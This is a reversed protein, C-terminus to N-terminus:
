FFKPIKKTNKTWSRKGFIKQQLAVHRWMDMWSVYIKAWNTVVGRGGDEEWKPIVYMVIWIARLSLSCAVIFIHFSFWRKWNDISSLPGIKTWITECLERRNPLLPASNVHVLILQWFNDYITMLQWLSDYTTLLQFVDDYTTMLQWLNDYATLIQWLSDYTTM